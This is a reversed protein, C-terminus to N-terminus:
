HRRSECRLDEYAYYAEVLGGGYRPSSHPPIYRGNLSRSCLEYHMFSMSKGYEGEESPTLPHIDNIYYAIHVESIRRM